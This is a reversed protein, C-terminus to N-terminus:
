NLQISIVIENANIIILIYYYWYHMSTNDFKIAFTAVLYPIYVPARVCRGLLSHLRLAAANDKQMNFYIAAVQHEIRHCLAYV